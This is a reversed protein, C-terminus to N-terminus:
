RPQLLGTLGLQQPKVGNLNLSAGKKAQSLLELLIKYGDADIVPIGIL